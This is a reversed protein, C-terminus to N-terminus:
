GRGCRSSRNVRLTKALSPGSPHRSVSTMLCTTRREISTLIPIEIGYVDSNFVAESRESVLAIHLLEARLTNIQTCYWLQSWSDNPDRGENAFLTALPSNMPCPALLTKYDSSIMEAEVDRPDSIENLKVCPSFSAWSMLRMLSKTTGSETKGLIGQLGGM